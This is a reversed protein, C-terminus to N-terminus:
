SIGMVNSLMDDLDYIWKSFEFESIDLLVLM